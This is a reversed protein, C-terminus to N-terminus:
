RKKTLLEVPVDMPFHENEYADVLTVLAELREDEPTGEKADWLRQIERLAGEYDSNSRIPKIDLLIRGQGTRMM